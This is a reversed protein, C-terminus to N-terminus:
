EEIGENLIPDSVREYYRKMGTLTMAQIFLEVRRLLPFLSKEQLCVQISDEYRVSGEEIIVGNNKTIKPKGWGNKIEFIFPYDMYGAYAVRIATVRREQTNEPNIYKDFNLIKIDGFVERVKTCLEQEKKTDALLKETMASGNQLASSTKKIIGEFALSLKEGAESFMENPSSKFEDILGRMVEVDEAPLESNKYVDTLQKLKATSIEWRKKEVTSVQKVAYISEILRIFEEPSLNYFADKAKDGIGKSYDKMNIRIRSNRLHPWAIVESDYRTDDIFEMLVKLTKYVAIQKYYTGM